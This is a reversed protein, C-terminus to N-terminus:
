AVLAREIELGVLDFGQDVEGLFTAEVGLGRVEGAEVGGQAVRADVHHPALVQVEGEAMQVVAAILGVGGEGVVLGAVGGAGLVQAVAVVAVLGAGADVPQAFGEGGLVEGGALVPPWGLARGIKM